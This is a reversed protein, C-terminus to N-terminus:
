EAVVSIARDVQEKLARTGAIYRDMSAEIDRFINNDFAQRELSEWNERSNEWEQGIDCWTAELDKIAQDLGTM